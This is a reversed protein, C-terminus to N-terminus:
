QDFTLKQEGECEPCKVHWEEMSGQDFYSQIRSAKDITPTSGRVKKKRGEFTQSRKRACWQIVEKTSGIEISDIDDSICHTDAANKFWASLKRWCIFYIRRSGKIYPLIIQIGSKRRSVRRRLEPTAEIM